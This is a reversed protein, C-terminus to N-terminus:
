WCLNDNDKANPYDFIIKKVNRTVSLLFDDKIDNLAFHNDKVNEIRYRWLGDDKVYSVGFNITELM